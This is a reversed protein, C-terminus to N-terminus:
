ARLVKKALYDEKMKQWQYKWILKHKYHCYGPKITSDVDSIGTNGPLVLLHRRSNRSVAGIRYARQPNSWYDQLGLRSRRFTDLIIGGLNVRWTKRLMPYQTLMRQKYEFYSPYRISEFELHGCYRPLRLYHSSSTGGSTDVTYLKRPSVWYDKMTPERQRVSDLVIKHRPYTYSYTM